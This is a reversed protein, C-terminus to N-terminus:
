IDPVLRAKEIDAFVIGVTEGEVDLEVGDQGVKGIVGVFKRRGDVPVRLKVQVREGSFREFDKLRKLPRDLGPSSVELRDYDIGEVAFLRTLQNSVLACDDVNVGGAKDLFVRMLRGRNSLELDVLEYGLGALTKDILAGLDV